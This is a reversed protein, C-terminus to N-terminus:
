GGLNGLCAHFDGCGVNIYAGTNVCIERDNAHHQIDPYQHVPGRDLATLFKDIAQLLRQRGQGFVTTGVTFGSAKDAAQGLVLAGPHPMDHLMDREFNLIDATGPNAEALGACGALGAHIVHNIGIFLTIRADLGAVQRQAQQHVQQRLVQLLLDIALDIRLEIEALLEFSEHM